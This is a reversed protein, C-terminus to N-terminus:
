PELLVAHEIPMGRAIRKKLRKLPVGNIAALEEATMDKGQYSYVGRLKEELPINNSIRAYITKPKLGLIRSAEHIDVQRGDALTFLKTTEKAYFKEDKVGWFCNGPEYPKTRDHRQFVHDPSPRSGTDTFFKPFSYLWRDCVTIGRGGYTEYDKNGPTYCRSRVNNWANYEPSGVKGHKEFMDTHVLGESTKIFNRQIYIVADEVTKGQRIHFRLSFPSIGEADAIEPITLSEGHYSYRKATAIPTDVAAEVSMGQSIRGRIAEETNDSMEALQAYTHLGGKYILTVYSRPDLSQGKRYRSEIASRTMNLRDAAESITVSEGTPLTVYITNYRNNAQEKPTAWRCNVPEYDRDNNIREISHHKSPRRGMDTLFASFDNLWRDCMKIGRGGYRDYRATNPNYCRTKAGHWIAYEDTKSKNHYLYTM